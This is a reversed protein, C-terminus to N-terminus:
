PPVSVPPGLFRPKRRLVTVDMITRVRALAERVRTRLGDAASVERAAFGVLHVGKADGIYIARRVHDAQSVVVLQDVGFVERARVVSEFTSFGAYDLVVRDAPVGQAVLADRMATPEDYEARSNDGSVLLARVRGARYLDAAALIRNEFFPNARGSALRPSCGLVLAVRSAPVDQQQFFIRGRSVVDVRWAAFGVSAAAFVLIGAFGALGAARPHRRFLSRLNM